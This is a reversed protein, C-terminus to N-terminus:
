LSGGAECEFDILLGFHDSVRTAETDFLTQANVARLHAGRYLVYDIRGAEAGAWGAIDGPFTGGPIAPAVAEAHADKWDGNRMMHEYGPGDDRVNFDGAIIADEHRRGVFEHARDFQPAFPEHEDNWWSLHASACTIYRNPAVQVDAVLLRRANWALRSEPNSVYWGEGEAIPLTTLMAVGEEWERFGIHAFFWRWDYKVGHERGLLEAIVLAANDARITETKAMGVIPADVHQGVEQLLVIQPRFEAIAAAVRHLKAEADAEQWCHLNLTLVRIRERVVDTMHKGTQETM